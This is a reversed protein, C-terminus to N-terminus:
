PGTRKRAHASPIVYWAGGEGAKSDWGWGWRRSVLSAGHHDHDHPRGQVSVAAVGLVLKTALEGKEVGELCWLSWLLTVSIIRLWSGKVMITRREFRMKGEVSRGAAIRLEGQVERNDTTATELSNQHQQKKQGPNRKKAKADTRTKRAKL